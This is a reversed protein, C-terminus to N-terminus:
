RARLYYNERFATSTVFVAVEDNRLGDVATLSSWSKSHRTHVHSSAALSRSSNGLHDSKSNLHDNEKNRLSYLLLRDRLFKSYSTSSNDNLLETSIGGAYKWILCALISLLLSTNCM